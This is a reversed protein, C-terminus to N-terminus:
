EGLTARQWDLRSQRLLSPRFGPDMAMAEALRAEAAIVDNKARFIMALGHVAAVDRPNRSLAQKYSQIADDIRGLEFNLDGALSWPWSQGGGVEAELDPLVQALTSSALDYRKQRKLMYAYLVRSLPQTEAALAERVQAQPEALPNSRFRGDLWRLYARQGASLRASALEGGRKLGDLAQGLIIHGAIPAPIPSDVLRDPDAALADRVLKGALAGGKPDLRLLSHVYLGNVFPNNSTKELAARFAREVGNAKGEAGEVLGLVSNAVWCLGGNACTAVASEAAARADPLENEALRILARNVLSSFDEPSAELVPNLIEQAADIELRALLFVALQNSAIRRADWDASGPDAVQRLTTEDAAALAMVGKEYARL